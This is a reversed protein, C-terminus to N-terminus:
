YSTGSLHPGKRLTVCCTHPLLWAPLYPDHEAWAIRWPLLHGFRVRWESASAVGPLFRTPRWVPLPTGSALASTDPAAQRHGSWQVGELGMEGSAGRLRDQLRHTAQPCFSCLVKGEKASGLTGKLQDSSSMESRYLWVM